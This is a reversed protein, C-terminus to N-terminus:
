KPKFVLTKVDHYEKRGTLIGQYSKSYRNSIIGPMKVSSSYKGEEKV